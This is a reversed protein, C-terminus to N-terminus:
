CCVIDAKDGVYSQRDRVPELNQDRKGLDPDVAEIGLCSRDGTNDATIHDWVVAIDGEIGM